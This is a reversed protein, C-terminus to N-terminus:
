NTMPNILAQYDEGTMIVAELPRGGLENIGKQRLKTIVLTRMTQDNVMLVEADDFSLRGKFMVEYGGPVAQDIPSKGTRKGFQDSQNAWFDLRQFAREANFYILPVLSDNKSIVGHVPTTFVYDAGGTKIDAQSSMGGTPVGESWRTTTSLLGGQPSAVRSVFYNAIREVQEEKTETSSSGKMHSGGTLNHRLVKIKTKQAIKKASEPDLRMEIRGGAGTTITVNEPGIGWKDKIRQLSEEREKGSPNVKPDVKEDFISMLRNEILIKADAQTSPRVDQVGATQLAAALADPTAKDKPAIIMIKNHYARPADSNMKAAGSKHQTPVDARMFYIKTGDEQTIVFTQGYGSKFKAKDSYAGPTFSVKDGDIANEPVFLGSVVTVRPDNNKVMEVLTNALEDGAWSTLKYKLLYADEGNTGSAAMIRLDLDEVSGSNLAISGGRLGSGPKSTDSVMTLLEELSPAGEFDSENWNLNKVGEVKAGAGNKPVSLKGSPVKSGTSAVTKGFTPLNYKDSSYGGSIAKYHKQAIKLNYEGKTYRSDLGVLTDAKRTKMGDPFAVKVYGNYSKHEIVVGMDGNKDVVMQMYGLNNGNKDALGNAVYDAPLPESKKEFDLDALGAYVGAIGPEIYKGTATVTDPMVSDQTGDEWIMRIKKPDGYGPTRYVGVRGNEDKVIAGPKILTGNADTKIKENDPDLDDDSVKIEPADTVDSLSMFDFTFKKPGSSAPEAPKVELPAAKISELAKAEADERSNLDTHLPKFNPGNYDYVVDWKGEYTKIVIVKSPMGDSGAFLTMNESKQPVFTEAEPAEPTSPAEPAEPANPTTPPTVGEGGSGNSKIQNISMIKIPDGNDPKVKVYNPDKQFGVITGTIGNKSHVVKSGKKGTSGDSLQVVQGPEEVVKTANVLKATAEDLTSVSEIKWGAKFNQVALKNPDDPDNTVMAVTEGQSNKVMVFGTTGVGKEPTATYGDPLQSQISKAAETRTADDGLNVTTAEAPTPEEVAPALSSPEFNQLTYNKSVGDEEGTLNINGNKPNTWVYTPAVIREKDNYKFSVLDGNKAAEELQAKLSENDGNVDLKVTKGSSGAAPNKQKAPKDSLEFKNLIFERRAKLKTKLEERKEPDSIISNVLEDIQSPSLNQLVKASELKQEDTMQSFVKASPRSSSKDTFADLEPVDEGFADGKPAGQARFLLAGGPDVRVPEGNKDTVVNDFDLGIVDWNGLLADIAFGQQLRAMYEKNKLQKKLDQTAGDIMPSYTVDNGNADKGAFVKASSIGAADYLASALRENEGHLKSKPTKVYVQEGTEPNEYTGGPNSGKQGGVKKWKSLDLNGAQEEKIADVATLNNKNGNDAPVFADLTDALKGIYETIQPAAGQSALAEKLEYLSSSLAINNTGDSADLDDLINKVINENGTIGKLMPEYGTDEKDLIVAIKADFNDVAERDFGSETLAKDSNDTSFPNEVTEAPEEAPTPEEPTPESKAALPAMDKKNFAIKKGASKGNADTDDVQVLYDGTALNRDIVKGTRIFGIGTDKPDYDAYVTDGIEYVQTAGFEVDKISQAQPQEPKNEALVEFTEKPAVDQQNKNFIIVEGGFDVADFEGSQSAWQAILHEVPETLGKGSAKEEERKNQIFDFAGAAGIKDLGAQTELEKKNNTWTAKLVRTDAPLEVKLKGIEQQDPNQAWYESAMYESMDYGYEAAFMAGPIGWQSGGLTDKGEPNFGNELIAKANEPTTFHVLEGSKIDAGDSLVAAYNEDSTGPTSPATQDTKAAASLERAISAAKKYDAIVKDQDKKKFDPDDFADAGLERALEVQDAFYDYADALEAYKKAAGEKDGAELLDAVDERLVEINDAGEQIEDVQEYLSIPYGGELDALDDLSEYLESVTLSPAEDDPEISPEPQVAPVVINAPEAMTNELDPNDEYFKQIAADQVKELLAEQQPTVAESARAISIEDVVRQLDEEDNVKGLLESLSDGSFAKPLEEDLSSITNEPLKESLASVFEINPQDDAPSEDKDLDYITQLLEGFKKWSAKQSPWPLDVYMRTNYDNQREKWAPSNEDLWAFIENASAGSNILKSLDGNKNDYNRLSNAVFQPAFDVPPPSLRYAANILEWEEPNKSEDASIYKYGSAFSTPSTTKYENKIEQKRLADVIEAGTRLTGNLIGNRVDGNPDNKDSILGALENLKSQHEEKSLPALDAQETKLADLKAELAEKAAKSKTSSEEAAKKESETSYVGLSINLSQAENAYDVYSKTPDFDKNDKLLDRIEKASVEGGNATKEDIYRRISGDLDFPALKQKIKALEPNEHQNLPDSGDTLPVKAKPFAKLENFLENIGFKDTKAFRDMYQQRQEATMVREKLMSRIMEKQKMSPPNKLAAKKAPAEVVLGRRAAEKEIESSGPPLIANGEKIDNMVKDNYEALADMVEKDSMGKLKDRFEKFKEELDLPKDLTIKGLGVAEHSKGKKAEAPTIVVVKDLYGGGIPQFGKPDEPLTDSKAGTEDNTWKGDETKTWRTARPSLGPASPRYVQQATSGVPYLDTIPATDGKKAVVKLTDPESLTLSSNDDFTIQDGSDMSFKKAVKRVKGDKTVVVDGVKIEPGTKDVMTEDPGLLYGTPEPKLMGSGDYKNVSTPDFKPKPEAPKDVQKQRVDYIRATKNVEFYREKGTALDRVKIGRKSPNSAKYVGIIEDTPPLEYNPDEERKKLLNAEAGKIPYYQPLQDGIALQEVKLDKKKYTAAEADAEQDAASGFEAEAVQKIHQQIEPWEAAELGPVSNGNEDKLEYKLDGKPTAVFGDETVFDGNPLKKWDSPAELKNALLENVDQARKSSSVESGPLEIGAKKLQEETLAVDLAEYNDLSVPLIDGKKLGFEENDQTIYVEAIGTTSSGGLLTGVESKVKSGLRLLFGGTGGEFAFRKLRDRLQRRARASRAASSNGGVAVLAALDLPLEAGAAELRALAHTHEVSGFELTYASAVLSRLEDAIRPDAALWEARAEAIASATLPSLAESLPHAVPLLDLHEVSEGTRAGLTALSIFRTVAREVAFL